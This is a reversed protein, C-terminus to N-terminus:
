ADPPDERRPPAKSRRPKSTTRAEKSRRTRAKKKPGREVKKGPPVLPKVYLYPRLKALMKRGIGRVRRLEAVRRFPRRKRLRVIEAARKEGIGPLTVLQEVTATNPDM